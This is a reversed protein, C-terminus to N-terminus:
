GAVVAEVVDVPIRVQDIMVADAAQCAEVVKRAWLNEIAILLASSNPPLDDSIEEADDAGLAGPQAVKVAVFAAGTEADLDAVELTTVEGADDKSVFLADIVRITGNDVLDMIAPAIQGSFKNGPFGIIFVDVPGVAM